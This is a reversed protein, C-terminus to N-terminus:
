KRLTRDFFDAIIKGIESRNPNPTGGAPAFGHGANTVVVLSAPVNVKKLVALLRESQALPVVRDQDGHLILFPPDDPTAYTVPSARKLVEDERSKAGFVNEALRPNGGGV